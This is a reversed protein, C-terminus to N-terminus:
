VELTTETEPVKLYKDCRNTRHQFIYPLV